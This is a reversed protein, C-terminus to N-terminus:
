PNCRSIRTRRWDRLGGIQEARFRKVWRRVTKPCVGVAQSVAQPM